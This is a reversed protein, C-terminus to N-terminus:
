DDNHLIIRYQRPERIEEEVDVVGEPLMGPTNTM